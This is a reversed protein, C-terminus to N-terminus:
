TYKKTRRRSRHKRRSKKGGYAGPNILMAQSASDRKLDEKQERNLVLRDDFSEGFKRIRCIVRKIYHEAIEPTTKEIALIGIKMKYSRINFENIQTPENYFPYIELPFPKPPKLSKLPPLRRGFFGDRPSYDARYSPNDRMNQEHPIGVYKRQLDEQYYFEFPKMRLVAEVFRGSEDKSVRSYESTDVGQAIKDLIDLEEVAEITTKSKDSRFFGARTYTNVLKDPTQGIFKLYPLETLYGFYVQTPFRTDDDSVIIKYLQGVVFFPSSPDQEQEQVPANKDCTGRPVDYGYHISQEDLTYYNTVGAYRKKPVNRPHVYYDNELQRWGEM